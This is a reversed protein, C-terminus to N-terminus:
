DTYYYFLRLGPTGVEDATGMVAGSVVMGGGGAGITIM